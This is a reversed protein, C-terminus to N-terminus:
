KPPTLRARSGDRNRRFPKGACSSTRMQAPRRIRPMVEWSRVHANWFHLGGGYPDGSWNVFKGSLPAPVDLGHMVGLQRLVAAVMAAPPDFLLPSRGAGRDFLGDRSEPLYGNWYEVGISHFSALLLSSGNEESGLYYCLRM